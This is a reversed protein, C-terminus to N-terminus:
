NRVRNRDFELFCQEVQFLHYPDERLPRNSDIALSFDGTTGQKVVQGEEPERGKDSGGEDLVM